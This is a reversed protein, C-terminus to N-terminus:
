RKCKSSKTNTDRLM